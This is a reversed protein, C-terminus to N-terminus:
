MIGVALLGLSVAVAFAPWGLRWVERPSSGALAGYVTVTQASLMACAGGVFNQVAPLLVPDLGHLRGLAAQLTMAASNSGVNSGTFFGSLGALVPAGYPAAAGLTGALAAALAQPAGALLLWRALVVYLVIGAAPRAALRLASGAARWPTQQRALLAVAVLWIGASVHTLPLAPLDAWPRWAPAGTWLRAGLLVAVLLVYPAAARGAQAWGAAGRPPDTRWLRLVLLPGTALVGAIEWPLALNCALLALALAAVWAAQAARRRTPVPHGAASAARWFLPLLLLLWPAALAATRVMLAHPEVGALAAGLASGPGLGGWPVLQMAMLGMLAAPPGRVGARALAGISFVAGVGFGTVSEMFPGLLYAATFMAESPSSVGTGTPPPSAPAMNPAAGADAPARTAAHFLLGGAVIAAAPLALWLARLAEAGLAGPLFAGAPLAFWVAPVACALAAACAVLAGARGSALLAVLVLLPLAQILLPM